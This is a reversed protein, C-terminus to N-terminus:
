PPTEWIAEVVVATAKQDIIIGQRGATYLLKGVGWTDREWVPGVRSPGPLQRGAAHESLKLSREDHFPGADTKRFVSDPSKVPM